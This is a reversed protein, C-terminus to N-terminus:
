QLTSISQVLCLLEYALADGMLPVTQTLNNKFRNHLPSTEFVVYDADRLPELVPDQTKGGMRSAVIIIDSKGIQEAIWDTSNCGPDGQSHIAITKGFRKIIGSVERGNPTLFNPFQTGTLWKALTVIATTKGSNSPGKIFICAKM